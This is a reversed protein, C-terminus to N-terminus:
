PRGSYKEIQALASRSEETHRGFGRLISWNLAHLPLAMPRFFDLILVVRIGESENYVEHEWSDDFVISEGERWTHMKDKVRMAPPNGAPVRLALHYRLYGHYSGCHAPISKGPDLISFFAQVVGPVQRLLEMTRPCELQNSRPTGVPTILMFVRWDRDPDVTGSIYTERRSIEHYRPIRDRHSLVAEMEDRIVAYNRDLSRLEPRVKDIDHFAPRREGDAAWYFLKSAVVAAAEVPNRLAWALRSM